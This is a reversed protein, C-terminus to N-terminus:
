CLSLDTVGAFDRGLDDSDVGGDKGVKTDAKSCASGLVAM